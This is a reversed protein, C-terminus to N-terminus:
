CIRPLPEAFPLDLIREGGIPTRLFVTGPHEEVVRGIIAAERGLEHSRLSDLARRAANEPVFVVLRGENAIQRPVLGLLETAGRIADRVPIRDEDAEIGLKQREAIEVHTAALGGRTPDRIAHVEPCAELLME